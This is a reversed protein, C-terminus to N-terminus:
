PKELLWTHIHSSSLLFTQTGFFQRRWVTTSSFVRSLGKSLLILGTLWLHIWGQINVPLSSASASAGISQGGSAFLWSILFPESAPFSPLCCSFHSVSSSITPMVSKISMLKLLCPLHHPVPFAPTSCNMPDCISLCLQAVSYCCCFKTCM